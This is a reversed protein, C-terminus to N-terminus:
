MKTSLSQNIICCKLKNFIEFMLFPLTYALLFRLIIFLFLSSVGVKRFLASGITLVLCHSFFVYLSSQYIFDFLNRFHNGYKICIILISSIIVLNFFPKYMPLCPFERQASFQIYSLIAYVFVILASTLVTLVHNKIMLKIKKYYRGTYLGIVWYFLYTLFIRGQYPLYSHFRTALITQAYDAALMVCLSLSIGIGWNLRRLLWFWFPRLLYLQMIIIVYYFQASLSGFWLYNLLESPSGEVYGIPIFCLYYIITWCIYPIYVKKIRRKIYVSYRAFSGQAHALGVKVGGIFLFGPVACRALLWPFFIIAAQWSTPDSDTIGLSLVHILIVLLCCIASFDNLEAFATRTEVHKGVINDGLVLYLCPCITM